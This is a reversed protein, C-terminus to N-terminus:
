NEAKRAENERMVAATSFVVTLALLSLIIPTLTIGWPTYNLLLGVIPVLAISMGLSLAAREITDLSKEPSEFSGSLPLRRPFLARIFAYGPLWLIFIAGLVYRLYVLPVANEPVTLAVAATAAVLLMTVWYWRAQSSALYATFTEETQTQAPKFRLRGQAELRLIRDTIEQETRSPQAARVLDILQRVSEPKSTEVTRIIELSLEDDASKENL